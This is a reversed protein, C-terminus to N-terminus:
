VSKLNRHRVIWWKIAFNLYSIADHVKLIKTITDHNKWFNGIVLNFMIFLPFSALCGQVFHNTNSYIISITWKLRIFMEDQKSGSYKQQLQSNLHSVTKEKTSVSDPHRVVQAVPIPPYGLHRPIPEGTRHHQWQSALNTDDANMTHDKMIHSDDIMELYMPLHPHSTPNLWQPNRVCYSTM